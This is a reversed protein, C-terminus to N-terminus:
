FGSPREAVAGATAAGADDAADDAGTAAKASETAAAPEAEARYDQAAIVEVENRLLDLRHEILDFRGSLTRAAAMQRATTTVPNFLDSSDPAELAVAADFAVCEDFREMSGDMRLLRQCDRSYSSAAALGPERGLRLGLRAASLVAEHAVPEVMPDAATPHGAPAPPDGFSGLELAALLDPHAAIWGTGGLLLLGLLLAGSRGRHVRSHRRRRSRPRRVPAAPAASWAAAATEDFAALKAPDRLIAYARNIEAATAANGGARDPHHQKMLARYAEDVAKRDASPSLGLTSYLSVSPRMRKPRFSRRSPPFCGTELAM